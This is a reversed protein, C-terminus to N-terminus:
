AAPSALIACLEEISDLKELSEILQISREVQKRSLVRGANARYKALIEEQPLPAEWNGKPVDVRKTLTRGDKLRVTVPLYSSAYDHSIEAREVLTVKKLAERMQPSHVHDEHFTEIVPQGWLLAAAMNYQFSFKARPGSEPEAVDLLGGRPVAVEISAVSDYTLHNEAILQLLADLPRHNWYCTPYTKVAVGPSLIHFPAGMKDVQLGKELSPGKMFAEAFGRRAEIINREAQYGDRALFAAEVGARAGLGGHLPKTMTGINGALGGALSGAIGLAMRTREVDLQLLKAAAAAAALGGYIPTSQFPLTSYGFGVKGHVELGLIYAELLAKGRLRFKEGLALIVPFVTCSPHGLPLWTDDFDLTHAMTGNAFAAAPASTRFGAGLVVAEPHGDNEKVYRAVAKGEAEQSGALAVGLMDLNLDKAIRIAEPPIDEFSTKVVFEAVKETAGM